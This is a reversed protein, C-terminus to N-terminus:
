EYFCEPIIIDDANKYEVLLDYFEKLMDARGAEGPIFVVTVDDMFREDRIFQNVLEGTVPDEVQEYHGRSFYGVSEYLNDEAISDIKKEHKLDFCVYSM